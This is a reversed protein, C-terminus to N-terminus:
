RGPHLDVIKRLVDKEVVFPVDLLFDHAFLTVPLYLGLVSELVGLEFHTKADCAVFFLFGVNVTPQCAV